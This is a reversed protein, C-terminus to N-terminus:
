DFCSILENGLHFIMIPSLDIKAMYMNLQCVNIGLKM